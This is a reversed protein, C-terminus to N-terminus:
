HALPVDRAQLGDKGRAVSAMYWARDGFHDQLLANRPGFDRAYIVDGSLRGDDDTVNRPLFRAFDVGNARATALERACEPDVVRDPQLAIQDSVSMGPVPVATPARDLEAFVLRARAANTGPAREASDLVHQLMCADYNGVILQAAFPRAGLASLRAVLRARWSDSVFVLAHSLGQEAVRREIMRTAVPLEQARRALAWVGSPQAAAAPLLWGLLVWLPVIVTAARRWFPNSFRERLLGPFRSAYLLFVPAATFLFRPGVARGEGWFVWYGVLLVGLIAVMLHDWRSARRQWALAAVVLLLAPIPWGLLIGDLRLLYASVNYIGRRPTHLEGMPDVHFGPRHAPGNLTDYAFTLPHGTTAWNAALLLAIPIAGALVQAALSAALRRDHRAANLQFLGIVLACLAADYPRITAAVGLSIGVIAATSRARATTTSTYWAPLAAIATWIAVLAAVHDLQSAAMFLVFPSFAFLLAACRAELETTTAALFRYVAVAGFAALVPNVLWPLGAAMGAGILASSGLPFHSFWRGGVEVTQTTSFFEAHPEARAFLHGTALLRGHWQLSLEDITLPQLRFLYWAFFVALVCVTAGVLAMFLPRSPRLVLRAVQGPLADCARPAFRAILLAVTAIPIAWLTWLRVSQGWWQLGRGPAVINAMPVLGLAFLTAAMVRLPWVRGPTESSEIMTLHRGLPEITM